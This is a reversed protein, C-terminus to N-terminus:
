ESVCLVDMLTAEPDLNRNQDIYVKRLQTGLQVSGSDPDLDGCIVKILTSKGAGNPGVIGIRDGRMIRLNLPKFLTRDGFAKSIGQADVVVRGSREGSQINLAAIGTRRRMSAREARLDMLRRLRGQNRTRRASIGERLWQTEQALLKDMRHQELDEEHYVEERWTDFRAFGSALQRVKGRDVWLTRNTSRELM